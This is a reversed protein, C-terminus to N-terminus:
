LSAACARRLRCKDFHWMTPFWMDCQQFDCTVNNSIVHWMTPFWMDHGMHVNYNDTLHELIKFVLQRGYPWSFCRLHLASQQDPDERNAIKVLMKIQSFFSILNLKKSYKGKRICLLLLLRCTFQWFLFPNEGRCIATISFLLSANWRNKFFPALAFM